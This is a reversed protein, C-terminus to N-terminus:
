QAIAAQHEFVAMELEIKVDEPSPDEDEEALGARISARTPAQPESLVAGAGDPNVFEWM